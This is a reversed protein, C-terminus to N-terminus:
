IINKNEHVYMGACIELSAFAFTFFAEDAINPYKPYFYFYKSLFLFSSIRGCNLEDSGDSCDYVRDCKKVFNVCQGNM